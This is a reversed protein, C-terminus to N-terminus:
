EKNKKIYRFSLLSKPSATVNNGSVSFNMNANLIASDTINITKAGELGSGGTLIDIGSGSNITGEITIEAPHLKVSPNTGGLLMYDKGNMNFSILSDLNSDNVVGDNFLSKMYNTTPTMLTLSGVNFVGSKGVVFGNPNAFLVTGGISGNMYSNVVGNIQSASSDFILNVLKNQNNILNLNVIDGQNVNFRGFTNIGINGASNTTTTSIDTINGYVNINTATKFPVGNQNIEAAM